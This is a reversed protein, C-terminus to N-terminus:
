RGSRRREAQRRESAQIEASIRSVQADDYLRRGGARQTPPIGKSAIFYEVRHIPQNIRRAAEGVSYLLRQSENAPM